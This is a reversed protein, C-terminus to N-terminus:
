REAFMELELKREGDQLEVSYNSNASVRWGGVSDGSRVKLLESTKLNRLLVMTEDSSIIIGALAYQQEDRTAVQLDDPAVTVAPVSPPVAKRRTPSFLPKERTASLTELTLTAQNRGLSIDEAGAASGAVTMVTAMFGIRGLRNVHEVRMGTEM